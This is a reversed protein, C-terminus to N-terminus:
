LYGGRAPPLVKYERRSTVITTIYAIADRFKKARDDAAIRSDQWFLNKFYHDHFVTFVYTSYPIHFYNVSDTPHVVFTDPYSFFGIQVLRAKISDLEPQSMRMHTTVTGDSILDKTFTDDFTNLQNRSEIGYRFLINFSRAQNNSIQSLFSGTDSVPTTQTCSFAFLALLLIVPRNNMTWRYDNSRCPAWRKPVGGNRDAM